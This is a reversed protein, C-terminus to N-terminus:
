EYSKLIIPVLIILFLTPMIFVMLPLSMMAPIKGAKFEVHALRQKRYDNAFQKLIPALSTGFKRSQAMAKLVDNIEKLPVRACFNNVVVLWDSFIRSETQMIDLEEILIPYILRLEHSIKEVSKDFSLNSQIGIALLSLMDPLGTLIEYHRDRIIGDVWRNIYLHVLTVGSFLLSIKISFDLVTGYKVFLVIFLVSGFIVCMFLKVGLFVGLSRKSRFGAQSLWHRVPDLSNKDLFILYKNLNFLRIIYDAFFGLKIINEPEAETNKLSIKKLRENTKLNYQLRTKNFFFLYIGLFTILSIVFELM